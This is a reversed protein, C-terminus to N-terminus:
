NCKGYRKMEDNLGVKGLDPMIDAEPWYVPAGCDLRPGGSLKGSSQYLFNMM